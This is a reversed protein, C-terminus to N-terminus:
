TPVFTLTLFSPQPGFSVIRRREGTQAQAPQPPPPGTMNIISPDREETDLIGTCM